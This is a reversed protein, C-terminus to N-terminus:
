IISALTLQNWRMCTEQRQCEQTGRAQVVACPFASGDPYLLQRQTSVEVEHGPSWHSSRRLYHGHDLTLSWRKKVGGLSCTVWAHTSQCREEKSHGGEFDLISEATIVWQTERVVLANEDKSNQHNSAAPLLFPSSCRSIKPRCQETCPTRM